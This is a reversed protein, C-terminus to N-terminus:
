LRNGKKMNEIAPLIQLNYEVHLGCVNKGQLPVIHDVHYQEGYIETYLKAITYYLSIKKKDAWPVCAKLRNARKESYYVTFKEPNAKKYEIFKKAQREKNKRHWDRALKRYCDKCWSSLSPTRLKKVVFFEERSKIKNCKTCLREPDTFLTKQRVLSLKLKTEESHNKGKIWSSRGMAALSLKKKTEDSLVCGKRPSPRGKALESLKKKTEESHKFGVIGL